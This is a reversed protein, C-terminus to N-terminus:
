QNKLLQGNRPPHFPRVDESGLHDIQEMLRAHLRARAATHTDPESLRYRNAGRAGRSAVELREFAVLGTIMRHQRTNSIRLEQRMERRGFSEEGGSRASLWQKLQEYFRRLDVPLDDIKMVVSEFMLDCARRLDAPTAIFRGRADRGRQHQHLMVTQAVLRQYLDNLRRLAQAEPPLSVRGAYPNVVEVPELLRVCHQLFTRTQQLSKEDIQGAARRNQYELVRATQEESEDVAVLFCRSMNDEYIEGHTTTALSAVPGRVTRMAARIRGDDGRVSTSSTLSGRSQLERLAYLAEEKLGDLDELGLLRHRLFNEDHNYLSHETVRTLLLVDEPPMLRAVGTLLHTKGSGSTGQLLAHLPEPMKYSLAIMFLFLRATEEGVVGSAGILRNLSEALDAKQLFSLCAAKTDPPVQVRVRRDGTRESRRRRDLLDALVHLDEEILQAPLNLRSGAEKAARAIQRDEFLDTRQRSKMRTRPHEIALTVKLTAADEPVGGLVTYGATVTTFSLRGPDSDDLLNKSEVPPTSAEEAPAQVSSTRAATLGSSGASPLLRRDNVLAGLANLGQGVAFSNVDEGEPMPLTSLTIAPHLENLRRAIKETAARGAADGDFALVVEELQHLQKVAAAHEDTFGNTGYLALVTFGHRLESSMQATAADIVSETLLLRKTGAAPYAPYLGARDTLYLHQDKDISRYYLGGPTGDAQKLAFVVCHKGFVQHRKGQEKLLGHHVASEVIGPIARHFAGSNYGIELEDASLCRGALYNKAAPSSLAGSRFYSWAKALVLRREEQGDLRPIVQKAPPSDLGTQNELWTAAEATTLRKARQVLDVADMTGADCRSSFCTAIQKERSFQLSPRGDAHFPCLAKQSRPDVAIGLRLAVDLIDVRQKLESIAM